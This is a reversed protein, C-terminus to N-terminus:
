YYLYKGKLLWARQQRDRGVLSPDGRSLLKGEEGKLLFHEHSVIERHQAGAAGHAREGREVNRRCQRTDSRHRRQGAHRTGFGMDKYLGGWGRWGANGCRKGCGRPGCLLSLSDERGRHGGLRSPHLQLREGGLFVVVSSGRVGLLLAFRRYGGGLCGGSSGSGGGCVAAVPTM